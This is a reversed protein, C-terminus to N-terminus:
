QVQDLPWVEVVGHAVACPTQSVMRIAEDLSPADIVAFGAVPLSSSMFPGSATEVEAADHNRVQVPKDAIGMLAGGKRLEADHAHAADRIAPDTRDYGQRDGYGITVFKPM